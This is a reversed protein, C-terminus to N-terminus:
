QVLRAYGGSKYVQKLNPIDPNDPGNLLGNILCDEVNLNLENEALKYRDPIEAVMLM